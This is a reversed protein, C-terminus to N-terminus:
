QAPDYLRVITGLTTPVDNGPALWCARIHFDYYGSQAKPKVTEVWMGRSKGDLIQPFTDAQVINGDGKIIQLSSSGTNIVFGKLADYETGSTPCANLKTAGAKANSVVDQWKKVADGGKTYKELYINNIYRLAEAQSNMVDRALSLQLSAQMRAMGGNMAGIGIVMIMSFVAVAFMVEILTDGKKFRKMSM